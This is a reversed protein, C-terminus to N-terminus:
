EEVPCGVDYGLEDCKRAYGEIDKSAEYMEDSMAGDKIFIEGAFGMGPECCQITFELEPFDMSAHMFVGVPPSYATDFEMVFQTDYRDIFPSTWQDNGLDWKTGWNKICWHYGANSYGEKIVEEPAPFLANFSYQEEREENMWPSPLGQFKEEFRDLEEKTGTVILKNM